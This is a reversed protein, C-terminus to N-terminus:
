PSITYPICLNEIRLTAPRCREQRRNARREDAPYSAKVDGDPM